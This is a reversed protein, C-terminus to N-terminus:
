GEPYERDQYDALRKEATALKATLDAVEDRLADIVGELRTELKCVLLETGVPYGVHDIGEYGVVVCGETEREVFSVEAYEWKASSHEKLYPCSELDVLDGAKLHEVLVKEMGPDVPLMVVESPAESVEGGVEMATASSSATAKADVVPASAAPPVSAVKPIKLSM